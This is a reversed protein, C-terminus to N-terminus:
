DLQGRLLQNITRALLANLEAASNLPADPTDLPLVAARTKEGGRKNAAAREAVASPDHFFCFQMGTVTPAHCRNGDRKIMTCQGGARTQIEEAAKVMVDPEASQQDRVERGFQETTKSNM